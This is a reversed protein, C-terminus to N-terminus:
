ALSNEIMLIDRRRNYKRDRRRMHRMGIFIGIIHKITNPAPYNFNFFFVLWIYHSSITVVSNSTETNNELSCHLLLINMNFLCTKLILELYLVGIICHTNIM